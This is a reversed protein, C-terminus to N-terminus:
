GTVKQSDLWEKTWDALLKANEDTSPTAGPRINYALAETVTLGWGEGGLEHNSVFMFKSSKWDTTCSVVAADDNEDSSAYKLTGLVCGCKSSEDWYENGLIQGGYLADLFYEAADYGAEDLHLFLQNKEIEHRQEITFKNWEEETYYTAEKDSM